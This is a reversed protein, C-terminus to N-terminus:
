FFIFCKINMAQANHATAATGNGADSFESKSTSCIGSSPFLTISLYINLNNMKYEAYIQLHGFM